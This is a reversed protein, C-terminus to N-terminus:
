AEREGLAFPNLITAAPTALSDLVTIFSIYERDAVSNNKIDHSCGRFVQVEALPVVHIVIINWRWIRDM